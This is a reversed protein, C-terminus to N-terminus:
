PTGRPPRSESSGTKLHRCSVQVDAQFCRYGVDGCAECVTNGTSKQEALLWGLGLSACFSRASRRIELPDKALAEAAERAKCSQKPLTNGLVDRTEYEAGIAKGTWEFLVLLLFFVVVLSLVPLHWAPAQM